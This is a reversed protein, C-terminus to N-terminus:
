HHDCERSITNLLYTVLGAKKAKKGTVRL